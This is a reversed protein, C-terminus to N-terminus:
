ENAFEEQHDNAYGNQREFEENFCSELLLEDPYFRKCCSHFLAHFDKLSVICAAPLSKYWKRANGELSIMFMKMLVDEHYIGLQFM